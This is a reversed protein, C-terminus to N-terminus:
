STDVDQRFNYYDVDGFYRTNDKYRFEESKGRRLVENSLQRSFQHFYAPLFPLVESFVRPFITMIVLTKM